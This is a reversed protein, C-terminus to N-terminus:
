DRAPLLLSSWKLQLAVQHLAGGEVFLSPRYAVTFYGPLWEYFPLPLELSLDVSPGGAQTGVGAGLIGFVTGQLSAGPRFEGEVGVGRVNVGLAFWNWLLNAEAVAGAGFSGRDVVIAPGGGFSFDGLHAPGRAWATTPALLLLWLAYASITRFRAM